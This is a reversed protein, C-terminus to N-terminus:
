ALVKELRNAVGRLFFYSFPPPFTSSNRRRGVTRRRTSWRLPHQAQELISPKKCQNLISLKLHFCAYTFLPPLVPPFVFALNFDPGAISNVNLKKTTANLKSTWASDKWKVLRDLKYWSEMPMPMVKPSERATCMWPFYSSFKFFNSLSTEPCFFHQQMGYSSKVDHM